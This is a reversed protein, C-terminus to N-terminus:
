SKNRALWCPTGRSVTNILFGTTLSDQVSRVQELFFQIGGSHTGRSVRLNANGKETENKAYSM